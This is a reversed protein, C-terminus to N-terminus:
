ISTINKTNKIFNKPKGKFAKVREHEHFYWRGNLGDEQSRNNKIVLLLM